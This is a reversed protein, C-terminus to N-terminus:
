AADQVVKRFDVGCTRIDVYQMGIALLVGFEDAVLHLLCIRLDALDRDRAEADDDACM